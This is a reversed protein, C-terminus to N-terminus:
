SCKYCSMQIYIGCNVNRKTTTTTRRTATSERERDTHRKNYNRNLLIIIGQLIVNEYIDCITIYIHAWKIIIEDTSSRNM